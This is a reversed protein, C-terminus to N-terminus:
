IVSIGKKRYDEKLKKYNDLINKKKDSELIATGDNYRCEEFMCKKVNYYVYGTEYGKVNGLSPFGALMYTLRVLPSPNDGSLLGGGDSGLTNMHNCKFDFPNDPDYLEDQESRVLIIARWEPHGKIKKYLDPVAHAIDNGGKHWHCHCISGGREGTFPAFLYKYEAFRSTTHPDTIIVTYM